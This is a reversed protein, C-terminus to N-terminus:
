VLIAKSNNEPEAVRLQFDRNVLAGMELLANISTDYALHPTNNEESLHALVFQTTGKNVLARLVEACADNSLHGKDSLIRKKLEFHYSGNKLMNVDHNSEIYVLNCGTISNIIEPTVIGTDTAVAVKSSGDSGTVIYGRGDACDHSTKFPKIFLGNVEVGEDNLTFDTHCDTLVGKKRLSLLTGASAYVPINNRKLFVSLGAVHDVHEHTLFVAKVASEEV